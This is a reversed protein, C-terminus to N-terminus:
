ARRIVMLSIDDKQPGGAAHHDVAALIGEAIERASAGDAAAAGPSRAADRL